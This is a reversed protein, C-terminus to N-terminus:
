MSHGIDVDVHVGGHTSANRQRVFSRFEIQQWRLNGVYSMFEVVSISCKWKKQNISM